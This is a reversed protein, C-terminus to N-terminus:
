RPWLSAPAHRRALKGPLGNWIKEQVTKEDRYIGHRELAAVVLSIGSPARNGHRHDARREERNRTPRVGFKYCALIVFNCILVNRVLNDYMSGGRKRKYPQGLACMGYARVLAHRPKREPLAEALLEHAITLLAAHAIENGANAEDIACITLEYDGERLEKELDTQLWKRGSEKDLRLDMTSLWGGIIDIARNEDIGTPLRVSTNLMPLRTM